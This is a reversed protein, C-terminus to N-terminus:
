MGETDFQEIPYKKKAPTAPTKVEATTEETSEEEEPSEEPSEEGEMSDDVLSSTAKLLYAAKNLAADMDAVINLLDDDEGATFSQQLQKTIAKGAKVPNSLETIEQPVCSIVGHKGMCVEALDDTKETMTEYLDGLAKHENTVTDAEWHAIQLAGNYAVLKCFLESLTNDM